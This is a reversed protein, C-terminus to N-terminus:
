VVDAFTDEMRRFYWLGSVLLVVVVAISVAMMGDPATTGLLAWRFGQIVGAMPNLGYLLRASGAPILSISYAIPSAYMWAQVLFPIVYQVDRYQVNLASLWLSVAIAAALAFLILFPLWVIRETPGIGYVGMLVFLVLLAIVFDVLVAGISSVPIILRPFYVKTLLRSDSVLSISARTLAGSFLQWPLLAALTFVPYPIGDSPLAALMGFIVSFILMSILPQLLVWAVGLATQTYRVKVDRWALFYLLDRYQWLDGLGLFFWGRAPEIVSVPIQKPVPATEMSKANLTREQRASIDM